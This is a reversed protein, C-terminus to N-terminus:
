LLNRDGSYDRRAESCVGGLVQAAMIMSRMKGIARQIGAHEHGRERAFVSVQRSKAVISVKRILMSMVLFKLNAPEITPISTNVFIIQYRNCSRAQAPTDAPPSGCALRTKARAGDRLPNPATPM